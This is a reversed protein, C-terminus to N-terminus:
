HGEEKWSSGEENNKNIGEINMVTSLIPFPSSNIHINKPLKQAETGNKMAKELM